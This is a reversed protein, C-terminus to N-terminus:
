FDRMVLYYVFVAESDDDICLQTGWVAQDYVLYIVAGDYICVVAVVHAAFEGSASECIRICAEDAWVHGSVWCELTGVM